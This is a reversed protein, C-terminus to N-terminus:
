KWRELERMERKLKHILKKAEERKRAEALIRIIPETNSPRVHFWSNKFQIKLGDLTSIHGKGAYKKKLEIIIRQAREPTGEVKDKILHYPPIERRLQSITKGSSAMFELTLGMATFSDRCPHIDPLIVGGNGEGGIVAARALLEEVVHIEGIKTRFLPVGRQRAIDDLAATTSLNTVVPGTKKSLLYKVALALTLEEGLAEGKESIIALRDADADQAFGVDARNKRVMRCLVRLNEPVPEPLHAFSGDPTTNLLIMECGLAELFKPTLIAGAGNSCDAVVRFKKKRISEVDLYDLLKRLHVETPNEELIPSKYKDFSVFSFDRHHYIDLLEEFQSFNLFLGKANIFKLGNWQPPNHSATVVIGGVANTEPILNQISPIPAIGCDAPQCGVSLLGAIIANKVMIGSPRTDQGVIVKGRGLYTGLAQAFRAALQPTLSDGVVGRVGSISIKLSVQKRM